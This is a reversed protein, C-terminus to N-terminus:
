TTTAATTGRAVRGDSWPWSVIWDLVAAADAAEEPPWEDPRAGFSAGAGRVDIDVVAYGAALMGAGAAGPRPGGREFPWRLDAGRWYRHQVLVAPRRGGSPAWADVAIRTGGEGPVYVSEHIM